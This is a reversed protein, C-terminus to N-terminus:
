LDSYMQAGRLRQKYAALDYSLRTANGREKRIADELQNAYMKLPLLMKEAQKFRERYAAISEQLREIRYAYKQNKSSSNSSKARINHLRLRYMEKMDTLMKARANMTTAHDQANQIAAQKITLRRSLERLGTLARDRVANAKAIKHEYMQKDRVVENTVNEARRTNGLSEEVTRQKEYLRGRSQQIKFELKQLRDEGDQIKMKLENAKIKNQKYRENAQIRSERYFKEQEEAQRLEQKLEKVRDRMSGSGPEVYTMEHHLREFQNVATPSILLEHDTFSQTRSGNRIVGTSDSSVSSTRSHGTSEKRSMYDIGHIPYHVKGYDVDSQSRKKVSLSPNVKPQKPIKATPQGKRIARLMDPSPPPVAPKTPSKPPVCAHLSKPQSFLFVDCHVFVWRFFFTIAMVLCCNSYDSKISTNSSLFEKIILM